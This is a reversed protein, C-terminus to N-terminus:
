ESSGLLDRYRCFGGGDQGLIGIIGVGLFNAATWEVLLGIPMDFSGAHSLCSLHGHFEDHISDDLFPGFDLRVARDVVESEVNRQLGRTPDRKANERCCVGIGDKDLHPM